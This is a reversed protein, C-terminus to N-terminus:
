NKKFFDNIFFGGFKKSPKQPMKRGSAEPSGLLRNQM